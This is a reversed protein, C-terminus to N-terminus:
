NKGRHSQWDFPICRGGDERLRDFVREGLFSKVEEPVLNSLLLTPLKNEYRDNLIDFMTNREFDSGFQVGIEDVILLDPSTFLEVVQAESEKSDRDWSGKIRRMMRLVTTFLVSGGLKMVELGIGVSLHTKGTGPKGCFVASRGTKLVEGFENAYTKAFLLADEQGKNKATYSELTRDLFREPIGANGIRNQWASHKRASEIEEQERQRIAKEDAACSPCGSWVQRFLNRSEFEGHSECIEDKVESSVIGMLENLSKFETKETM